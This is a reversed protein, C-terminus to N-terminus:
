NYLHPSHCRLRGWRFFHGFREVRRTGGSRPRGQALRRARFRRRLNPLPEEIELHAKRERLEGEMTARIRALLSSLSVPERKVEELTLRSYALLDRILVDMGESAAMIRRALWVTKM